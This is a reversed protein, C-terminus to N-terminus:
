VSKNPSRRHPNASTVVAACLCAVFAFPLFAISFREAGFVALAFPVRMAAGYASVAGCAAAFGTGVAGAFLPSIASALTAGVFVLPIFEGGRFGSGISVATFAIKEFALAFPAPMDFADRITEIGLGLSLRNGVLPILALILLGGIFARAGFTRVTRRLVGSVQDTLLVFARVALGVVGGFVAAALFAVPSFPLPDIRGFTLHEVGFLLTIAYAIAASIACEVPYEPKFRLTKTLVEMGFLAGAFPAGLAASFGGASGAVLLMRRDEPSLRFCASLQDSLSAGMQVAVGERGVSAGFLHSIVSMFFVLPAMRGPTRANPRHIEDLILEFGRSSTGGFREYLGGVLLGALPLAYILSPNGLRTATAWDLARLFLAATAGSLVGAGAALAWRRPSFAFTRAPTQNVKTDYPFVLDPSVGADLGHRM